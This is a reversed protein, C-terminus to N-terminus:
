KKKPKSANSVNTEPNESSQKAKGKIDKKAPPRGRPIKPKQPAESPNKQRGMMASDREATTVPEDGPYPLEFSASLIKVVKRPLPPPIGACALCNKDFCTKGRFGHSLKKIRDSRRVESEVLPTKRGKKRVHLVSTSSAHDDISCDRNLLPQPTSYGKSVSPVIESLFCKPTSTSPCKAPLVFMQSPCTRELEQILKWMSSQLFDKAWPFDEPSLLRATFFNVWHSPIAVNGDSVDDPKFYSEWAALGERCSLNASLAVFGPDAAAAPLLM